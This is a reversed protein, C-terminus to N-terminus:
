QGGGSSSMAEKQELDRLALRAEAQDSFPLRQAGLIQYDEHGKGAILVVDNKDASGIALRIAARRDSEVIVERSTGQLIHEIIIDPSETRPNDSTVVVKDACREAIEGMEARKGIDRDGGCGFVAWLNGQCHVRLAQLAKELADPTHAYDVVVAPETSVGVLEMRGPVARLNPIVALIDALDFGNAGAAGIVALLNALNFKGLIPSSIEGQGWPTVVSARLGEPSLGITSCHIDAETNELSYSFSRIDPSLNALIMRGVSDDINIVGNRLGQMAFLRSKAAAYANIDGHYDLHDRSLNTFVATDFRVGAVRRQVLSHSSVEVAIGTAGKSALEALIRQMAVADPTTLGTETIASPQDAAKDAADHLAQCGTDRVMGYGLTGVFGASGPKSGSAFLMEMLEALLRSCTTKGNTGTIGTLNIKASPQGYFVAAIDSVYERLNDVAIVPVSAGASDILGDVLRAVQQDKEVLVAVAGLDIAQPIYATGDVETGKIAIFLDGPQVQRSDLSIGEVAVAPCNDLSVFNEILAALTMTWKQSLSMM